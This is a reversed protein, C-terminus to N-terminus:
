CQDFVERHFELMNVALVQHDLLLQYAIAISALQITVEGGLNWKM